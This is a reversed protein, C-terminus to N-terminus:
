SRYYIRCSIDADRYSRLFASPTQQVADYIFDYRPRPLRALVQEIWIENKWIQASSSRGSDGCSKYGAWHALVPLFRHMEGYVKIDQVVERRYAKLGSNFDRLKIGTM